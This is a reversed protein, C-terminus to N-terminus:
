KKFATKPAKQIKKWQKDLEARKPDDRDLGRYKRGLEKQKYSRQDKYTKGM